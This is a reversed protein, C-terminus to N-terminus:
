PKGRWPGTEGFDLGGAGAEVVRQLAGAVMTFMESLTRDGGALVDLYRVDKALQEFAFRVTDVEGRLCPAMVTAAAYSNASGLEFAALLDAGHIGEREGLAVADALAMLTAGLVGNNLLKVTTGSGVPGFHMVKRGLIELVPRVQDFHAQEGGAMILLTGSRAGAPGGSVPADVFGVGAAALRGAVERQVAPISTGMDVICSGAAWADVGGRMAELAPWLDEARPLALLVIRCDALARPDDVREFPGSWTAASVVDHGVVALGQEALHTAMAAGMRGLGMVGVRGTLVEDKM